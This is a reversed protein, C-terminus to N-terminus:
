VELPTDEENAWEDMSGDYNRSETNGLLALAFQGFAGRIGAQCYSIVPANVDIGAENLIRRIESLSRFRRFPPGELLHRWEFHIAGPIRGVRANGRSETGNWEENSRTDWIQTGTGVLSKLETIDCVQTNDIVSRFEGPEPRPIKSTLPRNEAIWANLGGDVVRVNKHGFYRLVWWIRAAHLSANDDYVVVPQENSLGWSSALNDFQDSDMVLKSGRGKLYPHSLGIAGPVHARRYAVFEGADILVFKSSELNDALWETSVLLPSHEESNLNGSM